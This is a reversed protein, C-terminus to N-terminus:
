ISFYSEIVYRLQWICEAIIYCVILNIIKQKNKGINSEGIIIQALYIITKAIVACRLIILLINCVNLITNM